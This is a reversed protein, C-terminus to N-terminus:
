GARPMKRSLAEPLYVGRDNAGGPDKEHIARVEALHARLDELMSRPLPIGGTRTGRARVSLGNAGRGPGCREGRLSCLESIRLGWGYQLRAM